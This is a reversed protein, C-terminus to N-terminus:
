PRGSSVPRSPAAPAGPGGELGQEVTVLLVLLFSLLALVVLPGGLSQSPVRPAARLTEAPSGGDGGAAATRAADLLVDRARLLRDFEVAADHREQPGAGPRMDPHATRAAKLFARQVEAASAAPDVGLLRAAEQRAAPGAGATM